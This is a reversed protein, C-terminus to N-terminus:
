LISRAVYRFPVEHIFWCTGNYDERFNPDLSMAAKRADSAFWREDRDEPLSQYQVELDKVYQEADAKAAVAVVPWEDRDSYEGTHGMVVYIKDLQEVEDLWGQRESVLRDIDACQREIEAAAADITWRCGNGTQQCALKRLEKLLDTM